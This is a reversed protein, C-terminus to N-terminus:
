MRDTLRKGVSNISDTPKTMTDPHNSGFLATARPAEKGPPLLLQGVFSQDPDHRDSLKFGARVLGPSGSQRSNAACKLFCADLEDVGIAATGADPEPFVLRSARRSSDPNRVTEVRPCFLPNPGDVVEKALSVLM